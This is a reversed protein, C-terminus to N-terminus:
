GIKTNWSDLCTPVNRGGLYRQTPHANSRSRLPGGRMFHQSKRREKNKEAFRSLKVPYFTYQGKGFEYSLFTLNKWRARVRIQVSIRLYTVPNFGLKLLKLCRCSMKRTKFQPRMLFWWHGSIFLVFRQELPYGTHNLDDEHGWSMSWRGVINWWIISIWQSVQNFVVFNFAYGLQHFAIHISTVVNAGAEQAFKM